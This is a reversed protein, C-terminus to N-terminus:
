RKRRRRQYNYNKPLLVNYQQQQPAKSEKPLQDNIFAKLDLYSKPDYEKPTSEEIHAHWKHQYADQIQTVAESVKQGIIAVSPQYQNQIIKAIRQIDAIPDSKESSWEYQAHWAEDYYIDQYKWDDYLRGQSDYEPADPWYESDVLDLASTQQITIFFSLLKQDPWSEM